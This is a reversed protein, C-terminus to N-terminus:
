RCSLGCNRVAGITYLWVPFHNDIFFFSSFVTTDEMLVKIGRKVKYSVRPINTKMEKKPEFLLVENQFHDMKKKQFLFNVFM